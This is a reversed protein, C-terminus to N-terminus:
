TFTSGSGATDQGHSQWAAVSINNAILSWM